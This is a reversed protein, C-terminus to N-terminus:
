IAQVGFLYGVVASACMAVTSWICIRAVSKLVPSGGVKAAIAGSCALFLLASGYQFFVMTDLPAILSVLLPLAGGAIFSAASALAAQMPKAQTIDNIGLEDRAHTELANHATLQLAVQEALNDDLGRKRYIEALEQLEEGPVTRLEERERKLDAGEVDAQSSVSVYEGAAMSLSGAVVGAVAALLIPNRTDSAAAIGIVLSATSLIGDNAGLVAARLWASRHIYHNESKM